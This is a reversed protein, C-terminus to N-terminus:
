QLAEILEENKQNRTELTQLLKMAEKFRVQWNPVDSADLDYMDEDSGRKSNAKRNGNSRNGTATGNLNNNIVYLFGFLWLVIFIGLYFKVNNM